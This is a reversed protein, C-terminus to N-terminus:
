GPRSAPTESRGVGPLIRVAWVLVGAIWAVAAYAYHSLQAGPMWDATVRTLMAMMIFASMVVVPWLAAQFKGSQGSHGLVVRSAVTFTLLSFGTIFVVHLLAFAREPMVALLIFGAPISALAIRVGIALSGGAFGARLAPVELFFYILLVAARLAYGWRSFGAVELAFGALVALGCVGAFAARSLWGEPLAVSEPFDQRSPLGLFRPLLFAGIGMIPLLVFGQYLLLRALAPVWAPVLGPATQTVVLGFSGALASLVGMGVLVFAPPPTDRRFIARVGFLLVFALITVFFALDGWQTQGSYQLWATWVLAAALGAAESGTVRPVGLLGPLATGLFGTVFCGLFGEIMVRAHPIGPYASTVNWSYLPWMMVGAVGIAAGVPFLLRYPEGDAVLQWYGKAAHVPRGARSRGDVPTTGPTSM